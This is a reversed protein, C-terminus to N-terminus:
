GNVEIFAELDNLLEESRETLADAVRPEKGIMWQLIFRWTTSAIGFKDKALEQQERQLELRREELRIKEADLDLKRDRQEVLAHRAAERSVNVADITEFEQDFKAVARETLQKRLFRAIMGTPNKAAAKILTEGEAEILALVSARSEERAQRQRYRSLDQPTVDKLDEFLGSSKCSICIEEYTRRPDALLSELLDRAEQHEPLQLKDYFGRESGRHDM